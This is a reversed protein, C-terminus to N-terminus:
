QARVEEEGFRVNIMYYGGVTWRLPPEIGKFGYIEQACAPEKNLLCRESHKKALENLRRIVSRERGPFEAAVTKWWVGNPSTVENWRPWLELFKDLVELGFKKESPRNHFASQVKTKSETTILKFAKQLLRFAKELSQNKELVTAVIEDKVAITTQQDKILREMNDFRRFVETKFGGFDGLHSQRLWLGELPTGDDECVEREEPGLYERQCQPCINGILRADIGDILGPKSTQQLPRECLPCTTFNTGTYDYKEVGQKKCYSCFKVVSETSM